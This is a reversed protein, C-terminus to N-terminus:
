ASYEWTVGYQCGDPPTAGYTGGVLRWSRTEWPALRFTEEATDVVKGSRYFTVKVKAKRPLDTRNVANGAAAAHYSSAQNCSTNELGVDNSTPGTRTAPKDSKFQVAEANAACPKNSFTVGQETKCKYVESAGAHATGILLLFSLALRM